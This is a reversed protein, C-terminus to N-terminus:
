QTLSIGPGDLLEIPIVATPDVCATPDVVTPVPQLHEGRTLVDVSVSIDVIRRVPYNRLRETQFYVQISRSVIDNRWRTVIADANQQWFLIEKVGNYKWVWLYRELFDQFWTALREARENTQTWIDFQVVNDFFQGEISHLYDCNDIEVFKLLERHRPKTERPDEFPKRLGGPERRIIAWTITDTWPARDGGQNKTTTLQVEGTSTPPDFQYPQALTKPFSHMFRLHNKPRLRHHSRPVATAGRFDTLIVEGTKRKQGQRVDEVEFVEKVAYTEGTNINVYQDGRNLLPSLAYPFWLRNANGRVPIFYGQNDLLSEAIFSMAEHVDAAGARKQMPHSPFTLSVPKGITVDDENRFGLATLMDWSELTGDPLM